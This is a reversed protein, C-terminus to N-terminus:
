DQVISFAVMYVVRNTAGGGFAKFSMATPNKKAVM